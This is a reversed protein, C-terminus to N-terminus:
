TMDCDPLTLSLVNKIDQNQLIKLLSDGPGVIHIHSDEPGVISPVLIEQKRSHEHVKEQQVVGGKQPQENTQIPVGGSPISGAPGGGWKLPFPCLRCDVM